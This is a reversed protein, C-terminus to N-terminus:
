EVTLTGPNVTHAQKLAKRFFRQAASADASCCTSRRGARM